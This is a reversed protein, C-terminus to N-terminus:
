SGASRALGAHDFKNRVFSLSDVLAASTMGTQVPLEAIHRIPMSGIRQWQLRGAPDVYSRTRGANDPHLCYPVDLYGRGFALLLARGVDDALGLVAEVLALSQAYIGTDGIDLAPRRTASAVRAAEELAAVNEEITPIRFAEASTKVILRAAGTAVALRASEVLLRRAGAPTRPYVGM